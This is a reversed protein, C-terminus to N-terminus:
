NPDLESSGWRVKGGDEEVSARESRVDKGGIRSNLSVCEAGQKIGRNRWIGGRQRLAKCQTLPVKGTDGLKRAGQPASM